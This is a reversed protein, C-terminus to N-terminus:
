FKFSFNAGFTRVTPMAGISYGRSLNNAQVGAVSASTGFEPDAYPINKYIVWLNRGFIGFKADKIFSGPFWDNPLNISIGAERLKIFSADYVFERNAYNASALIDGTDEVLNKIEQNNEVFVGPSKEIVGPLIYGKRRVADTEETLGSSTGYYMDGSYISGGKQGDLLFTFNVRGLNLSSRISATWDPMINGLVNTKTSTVKYAGTDEDIIRQGDPAYVYDVGKIAGYSQGEEANFTVGGVASGLLLNTIGPAIKIVKNRNVAWNFNLDWNVFSTRVLVVNVQVEIGRNNIHGANLWKQSYGSASSADVRLIQDYSDTNYASIDFGLRNRFFRAELGLEYEFSREPKLNPNNKYIRPSLVPIGSFQGSISYTDQLNYNGTTKGVQAYNARLKMFSLWDKKLLNSLIVSGSVSPYYYVRHASPLNSSKDARITGEVYYTDSLGLSAQAYASPIISEGYRESAPQPTSVSNNLAYLGPIILGGETSNELDSYQNRRLATGLLGGLSIGNDFKRSYNAFLDFNVESQSSNLLAYGSKVPLDSIGFDEANSGVARRGEDKQNWTDISGRATINWHNNLKYNLMAYGFFRTRNDTQYNKYRDFYPNNWFNADNFNKPKSYGKLNWSINQGGSRFFADRQELIDVNTQWWQRFGTVINDSYGTVNRGKTDQLTLSSYVNATLKDTVNYTFKASVSNKRQESNPLIGTTLFNTYNLLFSSKENSKEISVSNSNTIATEFFKSPDNKAAVWPTKKMYFPSTKDFANWQYVMLNPDFEAGLSADEYTLAVWDLVGDGDVDRETFGIGKDQKVNLYNNKGYGAGFNKQYKIFTDPDINGFQIESSISVGWSNDVGSRGKKTTIVVVGSSAREGYLASAAAGKLVNISEIDNPNIDSAVNGGDYSGYGVSSNNVPVGDIVILAQNNGSISKMGRIVVSSSGGFNGSNVVQLGAAKGTMSSIVNGTNGGEKLVDGKVEQTAYGLTRKERKVGLATVVVEKLETEQTTNSPKTRQASLTSFSSALVVALVSKTIKKM